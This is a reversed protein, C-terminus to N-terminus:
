ARGLACHETVCKTYALAVCVSRCLQANNTLLVQLKKQLKAFSKKKKQWLYHAINKYMNNVVTFYLAVHIPVIVFHVLICETSHSDLRVTLNHKM